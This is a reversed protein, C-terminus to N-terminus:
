LAEALIELFHRVPLEGSTLGALQALCGSCATGLTTAGTQRYMGMANSGITGSMEPHCIGFIGGQGCCGVTGEPELLELGPVVTLLRRPQEVIHQGRRLHCPDHFVLSQPRSVKLFRVATLKEADALFESAERVKTSLRAATEGERSDPFLKHVQRLQYSCSACATVIYDVTLPDFQRLFDRALDQATSVEGASAALLGCCGQRDPLIVEIGLRQCIKLFAFGAQPFLAELGCGVFFAIKPKGRGPLLNPASHSFPQPAVQPLRGVLGTLAPWLRYLLGSQGGVWSKLRELLPGAATLVPLAQDARLSLYALALAPSWRRGLRDRLKARGAKVLDPTPVKATCKEACAGCLLCYELIEQLRRSPALDNDTLAQLLSLKGRAVVSEKGSLRYLPCVEMCAGCRICADAEALLQSQDLSM